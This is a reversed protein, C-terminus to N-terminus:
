ELSEHKPKSSASASTRKPTQTDSCSESVDRSSAARTAKLKGAMSRLTADFAREDGKAEHEKIFEELKGEKVAKRLTTM